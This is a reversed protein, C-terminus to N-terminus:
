IIEEVEEEEESPAEDEEYENSFDGGKIVTYGNIRITAPSDPTMDLWISDFRGKLYKKMLEFLEDCGARKALMKLSIQDVGRWLIWLSACRRVLPPIEYADQTALCVSINKHTSYYGFLRNLLINQDKPLNKIPLDDLVLLTKKKGSFEKVDPIKNLLYFNEGKLDDYEKTDLDYHIVIVQEFSPDQRLLLNKIVTSKGSGPKGALVCRFPHPINLLDRGNDWSEHFGKDANAIPIIKKESLFEQKKKNAEDQKDSTTSRTSAKRKKSIPEMVEKKGKQSYTFFLPPLYSIIQGM